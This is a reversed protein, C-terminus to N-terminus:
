KWDILELGLPVSVSVGKVNEPYQAVTYEWTPIRKVFRFKRAADVVLIGVGRLRHQEAPRPDTRIGALAVLKAM